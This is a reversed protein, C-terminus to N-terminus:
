GVMIVIVRRPGHMGKFLTGQIDGTMSPGTTFSLHSPFKEESGFVADSV